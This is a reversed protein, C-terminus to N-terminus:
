GEKQNQTKYNTKSFCIFFYSETAPAWTHLCVSVPTHHLLPIGARSVLFTNPIETKELSYYAAAGM